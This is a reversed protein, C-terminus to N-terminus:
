KSRRWFVGMGDIDHIEDNIGRAKRFDHIAKACTALQYDDVIVYGGPSLKDYLANLAQITSEYLDGDLRLVALRSLPATPLTDKFWGVLFKVQDDLLDYRRFNDEVQDRSVALVDHTYFSDGEDAPYDAANPQPLGAFSDALWVTRTNDGYAKLIARMFICAGGRWVGTEIFDGPIDDNIVNEICFQLNDLRKLGIMTHARPPWDTGNKRAVSIEESTRRSYPEVMRINKATLLRELASVFARKWLPTDPKNKYFVFHSLADHIYISDTLSRKMLDLYLHRVYGASQGEGSRKSSSDILLEQMADNEVKM